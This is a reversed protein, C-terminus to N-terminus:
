KHGEKFTKPIFKTIKLILLLLLFFEASTKSANSGFYCVSQAALPQGTNANVRVFATPEMEEYNKKPQNNLQHAEPKRTRQLESRTLKTTDADSAQIKTGVRSRKLM